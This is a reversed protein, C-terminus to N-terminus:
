IYIKINNNNVSECKVEKKLQNRFRDVLISYMKNKLYYKLEAELKDQINRGRNAIKLEESNRKVSEITSKLSNM